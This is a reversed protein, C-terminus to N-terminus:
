SEHVFQRVRLGLAVAWCVMLMAAAMCWIAGPARTLTANFVPVFVPGRLAVAVSQLVGLGALVRGVEDPPAALTLLAQMSPGAPAGFASLVTALLVERVSRSRELALMGLADLVLCLRLIALEQSVSAAKTACVSSDPPAEATAEALLPTAEDASLLDSVPAPALLSKSDNVLWQYGKVLLPLLAMLSIARTFASSANVIGAESPKLGFKTDCFPVLFNFVGIALISGTMIVSLLLLPLHQGLIVMPEVVSRAADLTGSAVPQQAPDVEGEDRGRAERPERVVFHLYPLYLLWALATVAFNTTYLEHNLLAGSVLPGVAHGAWFMVLALGMYYSRTAPTSTDAVFANQGAMVVSFGGGLGQLAAGLQILGPTRLPALLSCLVLWADGLANFAVSLALAAKRGRVDSLRGYPGAVVIGLVALLTAYVAIDTSYAKQVAPARCVDDPVPGAPLHARYEACRVARFLYTIPLSNLGVALAQLFALPLIASPHSRWNALAAPLQPM